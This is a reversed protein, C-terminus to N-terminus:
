VKGIIDEKTWPVEPRIAWLEIKYYIRRDLLDRWTKEKDLYGVNVYRNSMGSFFSVLVPLGKDPLGNEVMEWEITAPFTENKNDM